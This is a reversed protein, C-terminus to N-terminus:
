ARVLGWFGSKRGHQRRLKERYGEPTPEIADPELRVRDLRRRLAVAFFKAALM